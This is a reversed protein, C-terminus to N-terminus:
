VPTEARSTDSAPRDDAPDSQHRGNGPQSVDADTTEISPGPGVAVPARGLISRYMAEVDDVMRVVTFRREAARRCDRRDIENLRAIADAMGDVDDVVFGTRGDEVVEPVSARRFGIVPTGSALAEVMVLGFPEDWEIPFLLADAGSLLARKADADVEGVYRIKDGDIWPEIAVRAHDADVSDIKGALILRRGTRRAAQIARDAGKAPSFRGLFLLYGEPDAVDFSAVDIGHHIPPLAGRAPFTAASAASVAHHFWPYADWIPQTRPVFPNHMTSIVPTAATELVVMGEVGAHNHVIDFAGRREELLCAQANALQLYEAHHLGDDTRDGYRVPEPTVSRLTASTMSDGTAFLTVDHGRRVLEETLLHVVLETGGYTRPPVREYTPALQAIRM